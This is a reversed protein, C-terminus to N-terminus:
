AWTELKPFWTANGGNLLENRVRTPMIFMFNEKMDMMQEMLKSHNRLM